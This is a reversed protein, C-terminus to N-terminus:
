KVDEAVITSSKHGTDSEDDNKLYRLYYMGPILLLPYYFMRGTTNKMFGLVIFLLFSVLMYFRYYPDYRRLCLKMHRYLILVLPLTGLLGVQALRNLWFIHSDIEYGTGFLPNTAFAKLNQPIREARHEVTSMPNSTDIGTEIVYGIDRMKRSLDKQTVVNSISYFFDSKVSTPVIVIVLLLVASALISAGLRKRGALAFLLCLAAMLIPATIASMFVSALIIAIFVVVAIRLSTRQVVRYFAILMPIIFPISSTLAYTGLGISYIPGGLGGVVSEDGFLQRAVEPYRILVYINVIATIAIIILTALIVRAYSRQDRSYVYYNHILVASFIPYHWEMFWQNQTDYYGSIRMLFFIIYYLYILKMTGTFYVQPARIFILFYFLYLVYDRKILNVGLIPKTTFLVTFLRSFILGMVIIALIDITKNLKM